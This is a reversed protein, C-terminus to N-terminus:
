VITLVAPWVLDVMYGYGRENPHFNDGALGDRSPWDWPWFLAYGRDAASREIASNFRRAMMSNLSSSAGVRAVVSRNEPLANLITDLHSLAQPWSVPALLNNAGGILTVLGVDHGDILRRLHPVENRAIDHYQAGTIALNVVRWPEGTHERLKTKVKPVWGELPDIAGIGQSSSDGLAVWLPGSQSLAKANWEDWFRAHPERQAEIDRVAQSVLSLTSSLVGPKRRPM